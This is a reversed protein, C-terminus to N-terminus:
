PVPPPERVAPQNNSVSKYTVPRLGDSEIPNHVHGDLDRPQIAQESQTVQIDAAHGSRMGSCAMGSRHSQVGNIFYFVHGM